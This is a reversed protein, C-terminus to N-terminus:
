IKDFTQCMKYQRRDVNMFRVSLGSMLFRGHRTELQNSLMFLPFCITLKVLDPYNFYMVCEEVYDLTSM